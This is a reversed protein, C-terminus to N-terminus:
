AIPFLKRKYNQPQLEWGESLLLNSSVTNGKSVCAHLRCDIGHTEQITKLTHRILVRALGKRRHEELVHLQGISGGGYISLWAIPVTGSSEDTFIGSCPRDTINALVLSRIWGFNPDNLDVHELGVDRAWQQAILEVHCQQLPGLVYGQPVTIEGPASAPSVFMDHHWKSPDEDYNYDTKRGFYGAVYDAFRSQLNIEIGYGSFSLERKGGFFTELFIYIEKMPAKDDILFIIREIFQTSNFHVISSFIHGSSSKYTDTVVNRPDIGLWGKEIFSLNIKFLFQNESLESSKLTAIKEM